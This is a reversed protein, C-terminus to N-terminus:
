GADISPVDVTTEIRFGGIGDYQAPESHLKDVRALVPGHRAARILDDVVRADGHLLAEVTGDSRNRVWGSIDRSLAEGQLWRRYSVGQVFGCVVIRMTVQFMDNNTYQKM